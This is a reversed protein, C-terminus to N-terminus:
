QIPNKKLFDHIINCNSHLRETSIKFFSAIKEDCFGTHRKMLYISLCKQVSKLTEKAPKMLKLIYEYKEYSVGLWYKCMCDYRWIIKQFIDDTYERSTSSRLLSCLNNIQRINFDSCNRGIYLDSWEKHTEYLHETCIRCSISIYFNHDLLVCERIRRPILFKEKGKCNNFICHTASVPARKYATMTITYVMDQDSVQTICIPSYMENVDSPTKKLRKPTSQLDTERDPVVKSARGWCTQCM